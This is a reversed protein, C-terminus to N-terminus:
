PSIAHLRYGSMPQAAASSASYGSAVGPLAHTARADPTRWCFDAVAGIAGVLAGTMVGCAVFYAAVKAVHGLDWGVLTGLIGFAFGCLAAPGAAVGTGIAIRRIVNASLSFKRSFRQM